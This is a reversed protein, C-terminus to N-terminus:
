PYNPASDCPDNSASALPHATEAREWYMWNLTCMDEVDSQCEPSCHVLLTRRLNLVADIWDAGQQCM